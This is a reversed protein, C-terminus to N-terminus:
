EIEKSDTLGLASCAKEVDYDAKLYFDVMLKRIQEESLSSVGSYEKVAKYFKAFTKM